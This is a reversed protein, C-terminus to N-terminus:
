LQYHSHNDIAYFGLIGAVKAIKWRHVLSPIASKAAGVCAQGALERWLACAQDWDGRRRYLEALELREAPELTSRYETLLRLARAEGDIRRYHRALALRDAGYRGPQLHVEALAPMLAALSVLDWHNHRLVDPLRGADARHLWDFWAQPAEAGSLDDEREFGLLRQEARALRCDEWRTSFARRTAAASIPVGSPRSAASTWRILPLTVRTAKAQSAIPSSSSWCRRSSNTSRLWFSM